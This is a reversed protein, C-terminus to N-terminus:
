KEFIENVAMRWGPLAPEADAIQGRVFTRKLHPSTKAYIHVCEAKFDVDWVIQTGAAFYDARKKAMETEAASGYDSKSRIEVAFVPAGHVFEELDQQEPNEFFSADPAFSERGSPLEAVIYGVNDGLAVGRKLLKAFMRLAVYINGAIIGHWLAVSMFRVIRGGILEAKGPERYLDDLTAKAEEVLIM